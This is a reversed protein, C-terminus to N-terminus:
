EDNQVIYLCLFIILSAHFLFKLKAHIFQNRPKGTPYFAATPQQLQTNALAQQYHLLSPTLLSSPWGSKDLAQRKPLPQLVSQPFAQFQCFSIYRDVNGRERSM